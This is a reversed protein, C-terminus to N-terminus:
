DAAPKRPESVSFRMRLVTTHSEDTVVMQWEMDSPYTAALDQLCAGAFDIAQKRMDQWSECVTGESDVLLKGDL